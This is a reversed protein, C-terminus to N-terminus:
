SVNGQMLLFSTQCRKRYHVAAHAPDAIYQGYNGVFFPRYQVRRSVQTYNAHIRNQLTLPQLAAVTETQWKPM